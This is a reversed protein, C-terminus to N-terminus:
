GGDNRAPVRGGSVDGLSSDSLSDKESSIQSVKNQGHDKLSERLEDGVKSNADQKNTM